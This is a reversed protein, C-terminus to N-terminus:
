KQDKYRILVLLPLIVAQRHRWASVKTPVITITNRGSSILRRNNDNGPTNPLHLQRSSLPVTCASTVVPKGPEIREPSIGLKLWWISLRSLAGVTTTAFPPGNDTRIADPLGYERFAAEFIPRVMQCNGATLAQCRLLYRSYNDSITLPDCRQGDGTVFWGKFDASWVANASDCARFPETFPVTRRSRRRQVSLGRRRLIEGITSAAPWIRTGSERELWVRLKRPGWTPHKGRAALVAQVIARPVAQPNSLPARSRDVLGAAGGERYREIWKYGTKRSVGFDRCLASMSWEQSLYMGVFKLREDMPGTEKWPV